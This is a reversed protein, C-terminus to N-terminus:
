TLKMIEFINQRIEAKLRNDKSNKKLLEFNTELKNTVIDENVETINAVQKKLNIEFFAISKNKDIAMKDLSLLMNRSYEM